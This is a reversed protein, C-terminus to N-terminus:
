GSAVEGLFGKKFEVGWTPLVGQRRCGSCTCGRVSSLCAYSIPRLFGRDGDCGLGGVRLVEGHIRQCLPWPRRCRCRNGRDDDVGLSGVRLVQDFIRCRRGVEEEENWRM